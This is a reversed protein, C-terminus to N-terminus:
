CDIRYRGGDVTWIIELSSVFFGGRTETDYVGVMAIVTAARLMVREAVDTAETNDDRTSRTDDQECDGNNMEAVFLGDKGDGEDTPAGRQM